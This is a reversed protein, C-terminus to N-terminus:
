DIIKLEELLAKFADFGVIRVNREIAKKYKNTPTSMDGYVVFSTAKSVTNMVRGGNSTIINEISSRSYPMNGTLVINFEELLNSDMIRATLDPKNNEVTYDYSIVRKANNVQTSPKFTLKEYVKQTCIVDALARHNQEASYKIDYYDCLHGLTNRPLSLNQRALYLTDILENKISRSLEKQAFYDLFGYDFNIINHGVLPLDQIFDLFDALVYKVDRKGHLMAKTIHTKQTIFAPLDGKICILESFEDVIKGDIVKIAAIETIECNKPSLGTTEIDLVIYNKEM